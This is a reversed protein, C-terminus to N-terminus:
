QRTRATFGERACELGFGVLLFAALGDLNWQRWAYTAMASVAVGFVIMGIKALICMRRKKGLEEVKKARWESLHSM